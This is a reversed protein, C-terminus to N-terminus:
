LMRMECEENAEQSKYSREVPGERIYLTSVFGAVAIVFMVVWVMNGQMLNYKKSLAFLTSVFAPSGARAVCAVTQALGFTSGLAESSPAANRILITNLTFCMHGLRLVALAVAIGIWLLTGGPYTITPMMGVEGLGESSAEIAVNMSEQMAALAEPTASWRALVSLFPLIAFLVPWLLMLVRYLKVSNFRKQLFPFVLLTVFSGVLGSFALAYGIEDPSRALGGLSLPSYALLIFVVDFSAASISLLFYNRFVPKISPSNFIARIPLEAKPPPPKENRSASIPSPLSTDLRVKSPLSEKLFVAGVIISCMTLVASLLCPLLYPYTRLIEIKGFTEPYYKEPNVFNGGIMPGIICGLSWSIGTLPFALAQNTEDTIEGVVSQVVATNGSLAGALARSIVAWWFTKALGFSFTSVAVGILGLLIVPKRGIRDSLRGWQLITFLQCVAFLSDVVGSYYGIESKKDTVKLDEM